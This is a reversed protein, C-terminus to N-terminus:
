PYILYQAMGSAEAQGLTKVNLGADLTFERIEVPGRKWSKFMKFVTGAKIELGDYGAATCVMDRTTTMEFLHMGADWKSKCGFDRCPKADEIGAHACVARIYTDIFKRYQPTAYPDKGRTIPIAGAEPPADQGIILADTQKLNQKFAYIRDICM